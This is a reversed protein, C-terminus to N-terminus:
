QVEMTQNNNVEIPDCTKYWAYCMFVILMTYFLRKYTILRRKRKRPMRKFPQM